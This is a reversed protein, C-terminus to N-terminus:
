NKRNKATMEIKKIVHIYSIMTFVGAALWAAPDCFVALSYSMLKMAALACILRAALEVVGGMMPLFGYGCGQMTNRFTFIVSLPIYFTICLVTYRKAYFMIQTMDTGAEFFFKLLVSLGFYALLGAIVSYVVDILLAARVGKKIREVEGAGYNQGSYTAMTQGIAMMGQTLMNQIKSAASFAAVATAGFLNIASQMIMTGSATIAFQLAMPIGVALQRNTDDKNFRFQSVNPRLVPEKKMIYIVCLVASLAQAANTAWAAGAVGMNLGIIFFLDLVVNLCASFVLTILPVKSNGIARLCAAFYNYAVSAVIGMCIVSIYSYADEFIDEPTNMLHLVQRMCLLSVLTMGIIVLISLLIGNAVSQRTGNEDSIGFRQSTLVTFGTSLGTSAGIVMFMITGTSGVAALANAGVFRGVIMSDVANYIQQFVNGIFLPLTFQLIIPLPNGKTMNKQM